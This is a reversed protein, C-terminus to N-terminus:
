GTMMVLPTMVQDLKGCLWSAQASLHLAWCAPVVQDATCFQQVTALAAHPKCLKLELQAKRCALVQHAIFVKSLGTLQCLLDEGQAIQVETDALSGVATDSNM